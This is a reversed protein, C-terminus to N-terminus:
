RCAICFINVGIKRYVTQTGICLLITPVNFQCLKRDIVLLFIDLTLDIFLLRIYETKGAIDPIDTIYPLNCGLEM